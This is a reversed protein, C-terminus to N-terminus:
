SLESQTRERRPVKQLAPHIASIAAPKLTIILPRMMEFVIHPVERVGGRAQFRAREAVAHELKGVPLSVSIPDELPPDQFAIGSVLFHLLKRRRLCRCRRSVRHCIRSPPLLILPRGKPLWFRARHVPRPHLCASMPRSTITNRPSFM